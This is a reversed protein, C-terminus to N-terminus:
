ARAVPATNALQSLLLSASGSLLILKNGIVFGLITFLYKWLKIVRLEMIPLIRLLLHNTQKQTSSAAAKRFGAAISGM